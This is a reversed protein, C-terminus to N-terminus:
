FDWIVRVEPIGDIVFSLTNIQATGVSTSWQIQLVSDADIGKADGIFSVNQPNGSSSPGFSVTQTMSPTGDVCLRFSISSNNNTHQAEISIWAVYDGLSGLDKTTLVAGSIDVFTASTTTIPGSINVAQRDHFIPERIFM